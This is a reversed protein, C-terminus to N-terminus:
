VDFLVNTVFASLYALHGINYEVVLFRLTDHTDFKGIGFSGSLADLYSM